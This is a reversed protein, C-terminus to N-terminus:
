FEYTMSASYLKSGVNWTAKATYINSSKTIGIKYGDFTCNGPTQITMPPTPPTVSEDICYTNAAVWNSPNNISSIRLLEIQKQLLATARASSRAASLATISSNTVSYSISMALSLITLAILVEVITDGAKNSKINLTKM